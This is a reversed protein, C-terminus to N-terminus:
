NYTKVQISSVLLGSASLPSVTMFILSVTLASHPGEWLRPSLVLQNLARFPGLFSLFYITLGSMQFHWSSPIISHRPGCPQTM